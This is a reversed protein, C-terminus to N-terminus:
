GPARNRTCRPGHCEEQRCEHEGIRVNDTATTAFVFTDHGTVTNTNIDQRLFVRTWFTSTGTMVGLTQTYNGGPTVKLSHTGSHAVTSDITMYMSSTAQQYAPYYVAQSPIM